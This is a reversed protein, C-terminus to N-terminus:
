KIRYLASEARILFDSGIVAYSALTRSNMHNRALEEFTRGARIVIGEGEESQFYIKGDGYLPSASYNGGLREQWHVKGTKADACTAIGRDSVMYIESGVLLMSPTHPAARRIKWAINAAPLDGTGEPSIAMAVPSQYSTSLFVLGQGFVPRPIISYGEYGVTWIEAGDRPRYAIVQDTAPSIIQKQGDVEIVLPTSFSFKKRNSVPPRNKKWRIKGTEHDLAVVFPNQSGDCSFVLLGEVLVPSGGNGHVMSYDLDENKWLIEGALSLAATGQAGFHVFLRRGDTVPTPSAHSNKSHIRQTDQPTQKFVEVDWVIKGTEGALCLARLSYEDKVTQSPVATTLYIRNDWVVPSSWGEGPLDQKWAVNQTDSWQTPLSRASTHGQGDPGRFQPWNEARLPGDTTFCLALLCMLVWRM